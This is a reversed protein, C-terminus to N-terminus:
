DHSAGASNNIYKDRAGCWAGHSRRYAANLRNLKRSWRPSYYPYEPQARATDWHAQLKRRAARHQRRLSILTPM